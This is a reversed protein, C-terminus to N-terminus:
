ELIEISFHVTNHVCPITSLNNVWYDKPLNNKVNLLLFLPILGNLAWICVSTNELTSLRNNEVLFSDGVEMGNSCKGDIKEM